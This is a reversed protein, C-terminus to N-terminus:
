IERIKLTTLIQNTQTIKKASNEKVSAIAYFFIFWVFLNYPEPVSIFMLIVVIIAPLVFRTKNHAGASKLIRFIFVMFLIVGIIGINGLWTSFLDKSRSSGFGVGTPYNIGIMIMTSFADWREMGSKNGLNLKILLQNIVDGIINTAVLVCTATILLVVVLAWIFISHKKIITWKAINPLAVLVLLILGILFTSSKTLLGIAIASIIIIIDKIGRAGQAVILIAPVLYYCLMSAEDCPGYLRTGQVNGHVGQRFLADFELDFTFAFYQYICIFIVAILGRKFWVKCGDFFQENNKYRMLSNLFLIDFLLYVIHIVNSQSFALSVYDGEQNMIVIGKSSYILPFIVSVACYAFFIILSVDLRVALRNPKFLQAIFYLISFYFSPQLSFTSINIVSSGSFGSFFIAFYIFYISRKFFLVYVTLLIAIYGLFTIEM